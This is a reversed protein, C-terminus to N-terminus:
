PSSDGSTRRGTSVSHNDQRTVGRVDGNESPRQFTDITAVILLDGEDVFDGVQSATFVRGHPQIGNGVAEQLLGGRTVNGKRYLSVDQLYVADIRPKGHEPECPRIHVTWYRLRMSHTGQWEAKKTIELYWLTDGRNDEDFPLRFPPSRIPVNAPLNPLGRVIWEQEYKRPFITTTVPRLPSSPVTSFTPSPSDVASSYERSYQIKAM